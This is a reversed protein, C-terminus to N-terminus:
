NVTSYIREYKVLLADLKEKTRKLINEKEARFKTLYEEESIKNANFAKDLSTTVKGMENKSTLIIGDINSKLGLLDDEKAEVQKVYEDILNQLEVDIEM